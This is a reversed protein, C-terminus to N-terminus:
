YLADQQMFTIINIRKEWGDLFGRNGKKSQQIKSWKEKGEFENHVGDNGEWQGVM